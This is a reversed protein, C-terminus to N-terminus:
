THLEKVDIEPSDNVIIWEFLLNKSQAVVNEIVELRESIVDNGKYFPTIISLEVNRKVM